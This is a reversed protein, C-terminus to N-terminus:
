APRCEVIFRGTPQHGTATITLGAEEALKRFDALSRNKGGVLVTEPSLGMGQEDPSVSGVVAVRGLPLAAEACRRLILLAEADPWDHIVRNLVYLDAGAPLPDFFSQGAAEARDAVGAVEFGANARASTRPFDVLTGQLAPHAQLIAILLSGTGGGVDVVTRISEWDGDVLVDPDPAGHGAPGMLDDFSTGIEPHADLDEWFPLGFIEHYAPKGTRVQRLLGSWALAMRGGIGDLDLALRIPGDLLARAPENLAFHGPQPELFVGRRVLHSMVRQLMEANTASAQALEDVGTIGNDIHNAIRLTAVVHLSWPTALDSLAFVDVEGPDPV